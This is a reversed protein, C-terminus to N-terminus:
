VVTVNIDLRDMELGLIKLTIDINWSIELYYNKKLHYVMIVFPNITINTCLNTITFLQLM